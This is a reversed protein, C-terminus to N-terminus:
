IANLSRAAGAAIAEDRWTLYAKSGLAQDAGGEVPMTLERERDISIAIEWVRLSGFSSERLSRGFERRGVCFCVLM